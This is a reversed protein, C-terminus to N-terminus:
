VVLSDKDHELIARRCVRAFLRCTSILQIPNLGGDYYLSYDCWLRDEESLAFRVLVLENNLYNAWAAKKVLNIRKHLPFITFLVLRNNDPVVRFFICIGDEEIFLDGDSDRDYKIFAARFIKELTRISVESEHILNSM